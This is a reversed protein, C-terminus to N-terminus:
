RNLNMFDRFNFGANREGQPVARTPYTVGEGLKPLTIPEAEFANAFIGQAAVKRRVAEGDLEKQLEDHFEQLTMGLRELIDDLNDKVYQMWEQNLVTFCVINNRENGNFYRELLSEAPIGTRRSVEELNDLQLWLMDFMQM